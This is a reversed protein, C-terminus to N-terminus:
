QETPTGDITRAHFYHQETSGSNHDDPVHHMAALAQVALIPVSPSPRSLEGSKLPGEPGYYRARDIIAPTPTAVEM